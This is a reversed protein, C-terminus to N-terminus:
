HRLVLFQDRDRQQVQLHRLVRVRRRRLPSRRLPRRLPHHALPPRPPPRPPLPPNPRNRPRRPPRPPSPSPPAPHPHSLHNYLLSLLVPIPLGTLFSFNSCSIHVTFLCLSFLSVTVRVDGGYIQCQCWTILSLATLLQPQVILAVNLANVTNYVALPCGAGAWLLM